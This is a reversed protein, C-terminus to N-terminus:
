ESTLPNEYRVQRFKLFDTDCSVLTASHCIALSALHADSTLNGGTGVTQLLDRFVQWHGTTEQVIRANPLQLWNDVNELAERLTLSQPFARPHTAVRIFGTLVLWALGLPEGAAIASEWWKHIASHHVAASNVVYLLINVDVIKV